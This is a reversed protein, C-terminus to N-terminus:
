SSAISSTAKKKRKRKEEKKKLPFLLALRFHRTEDQGTNLQRVKDQRYQRAKYGM